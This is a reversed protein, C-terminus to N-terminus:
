KPSKKKKKRDDIKGKALFDKGSIVEPEQAKILRLEQRKKMAPDIILPKLIKMLTEESDYSVTNLVWNYKKQLDVMMAFPNEGEQIIPVFPIQYDPVTAQLELPSSKPNTVDAIVFYSLGALTKITETFDKDNPRDFDFVIPLLDYERLKNRIADLIKKRKQITFRGLILVSKSTLVNLVDRIEKNNLLLYVFQAIKINDVTVVSKGSPTVILQKQEVFEGKLDWVNVGYIRSNSINVKDVRTKFFNTNVLQTKDLHAESLDAKSFNAGNLNAKSLIAGTLNAESLNADCLKAKTFNVERLYALYLDAMRLDAGVLNAQYLNAQKFTSNILKAENLNAGKLRAHDLSSYKLNTEILKADNLNAMALNTKSLSAYSLDAAQIKAEMFLVNEGQTFSLDSGQLNAHYFRTDFLKSRKLNAKHLDVNDFSAKNLIANAINANRLCSGSFYTKYLVAENLNVNELNVETLDAQSLDVYVTPNEMRWKNWVDVGQRLISLQEENAM